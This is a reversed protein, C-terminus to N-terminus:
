KKKNKYNIYTEEDVLSKVIEEWYNSTKEEKISLIHKLFEEENYASYLCKQCNNDCGEKKYFCSFMGNEEIDLERDYEAETEWANLGNITKM